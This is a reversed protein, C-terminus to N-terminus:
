ICVHVSMYLVYIINCRKHFNDHASGCFYKEKGPSSPEPGVHIKSIKVIYIQHKFKRLPPPPPPLPPRVGWGWGESDRKDLDSCAPKKKLKLAKLDTSFNGHATHRDNVIKKKKVDRFGIKILNQTVIQQSFYRYYKLNRIWVRCIAQLRWFHVKCQYSQVM